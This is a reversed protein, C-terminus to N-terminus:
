LMAWRVFSEQIRDKSDLDRYQPFNLFVAALVTESDQRWSKFTQKKFRQLHWHWSYNKKQKLLLHAPIPKRYLGAQTKFHNLNTGAACQVLDGPQLLYSIKRKPQGLFKLAIWNEQTYTWCTKTYLNKPDRLKLPFSLKKLGYYLGEWVSCSQAPTVFVLGATILRRAWLISPALNLRYVVVDLRSEFHSLLIEQSSLNKAKIRKSKKVIKKVQRDRLHGYFPYLIKSAVQKIRMFKDARIRYRQRFNNLLFNARAYLRNRKQRRPNKTRLYEKINVIQFKNEKRYDEGFGSYLARKFLLINKWPELKQQTWHIQFATKPRDLFFRKASRPSPKKQILNEYWWGKTHSFRFHFYKKAPPIYHKEGRSLKRWYSSTIMQGIYTRFFDLRDKLRLNQYRSYTTNLWHQRRNPFVLVKKWPQFFFKSIKANQRQRLFRVRHRWNDEKHFTETYDRICEKVFFRLKKKKKPLATKLDKFSTCLYKMSIWHEKNIHHSTKESENKGIYVLKKHTFFWMFKKLFHDKGRELHRGFFSMKSFLRAIKKNKFRKTIKPTFRSNKLPWRKKNKSKNKYPNYPRSM